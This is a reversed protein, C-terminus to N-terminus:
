TLGRWWGACVTLLTGFFRLTPKQGNIGLGAPQELVLEVRHHPNLETELQGGMAWDPAGKKNGVCLQFLHMIDKDLLDKLDTQKDTQKKAEGSM